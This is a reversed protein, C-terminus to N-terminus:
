CAILGKPQHHAIRVNAIGIPSMTEAMIHLPVSGVRRSSDRPPQPQPQPREVIELAVGRLLSPSRNVHTVNDRILEVLRHELPHSDHYVPQAINTPTESSPSASSLDHDTRPFPEM